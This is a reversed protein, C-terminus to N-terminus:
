WSMGRAHWVAYMQQERYNEGTRQQRDLIVELQGCKIGVGARQDQKCGDNYCATGTISKLQYLIGHWKCGQELPGKQEFPGRYHRATGSHKEWLVCDMRLGEPPVMISLVGM